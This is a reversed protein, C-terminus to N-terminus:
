QWHKAHKANSAEIYYRVRERERVPLPLSARPTVTNGTALHNSTAAETSHVRESASMSWRDGSRARDSLTDNCHPKWRAGDGARNCVCCDTCRRWLAAIPRALLVLVANGKGAWAITM